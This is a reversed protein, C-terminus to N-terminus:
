ARIQGSKMVGLPPPVSMGHGNDIDYFGGRGIRTSITRGAIRESQVQQQQRLAEAADNEARGIRALRGGVLRRYAVEQEAAMIANTARSWSSFEYPPRPGSLDFALRTPGRPPESGGAPAAAETPTIQPEEIASTAGEAKESTARTRSFIDSGVKWVTSLMELFKRTRQERSSQDGLTEVEDYYDTLLKSVRQKEKSPLMTFETRLDEYAPPPEFVTGLKQRMLGMIREQEKPSLLAFEKILMDRSM